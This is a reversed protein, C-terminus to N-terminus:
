DQQRWPTLFLAGKNVMPLAKESSLTNKGQLENENPSKLALM